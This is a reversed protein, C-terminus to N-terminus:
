AAGSTQIEKNPDIVFTIPICPVVIEGKTQQDTEQQFIYLVSNLLTKNTKGTGGTPGPMGRPGTGGTPGRPGEAGDFGSPGPEGKQGKQGVQGSTGPLNLGCILVLYLGYVGLM